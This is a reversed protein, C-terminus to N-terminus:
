EYIHGLGELIENLGKFIECIGWIDGLGERYETFKLYVGLVEQFSCKAGLVEKMWIKEIMVGFWTIRTGFNKSDYGRARWDIWISITTVNTHNYAQANPSNM